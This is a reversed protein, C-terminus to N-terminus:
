KGEHSNKLSLTLIILLLLGGHTIIVTSLPSSIISFIFIFILGYYKLNIKLSKIFTMIISFVLINIVVGTFGLNMYGDSILGNNANM